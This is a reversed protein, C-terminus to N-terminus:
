YQTADPAGAHAGCSVAFAPGQDGRRHSPGRASPRCCGLSEAPRPRQSIRWAITSATLRRMAGVGCGRLHSYQFLVVRGIVPRSNQKKSLPAARVGRVALSAVRFVFRRKARTRNEQQGQHMAATFTSPGWREATKGVGGTIRM